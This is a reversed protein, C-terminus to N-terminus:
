TNSNNKLALKKQKYEVKEEPTLDRYMKGFWQWCYQKSVQPTPKKNKLRNERWKKKRLAIAEKNQEYYLSNAKLCEEKNTHYYSKSYERFYEIHNERYEKQKDKINDKNKEYYEKQKKKLEEKHKEYYERSVIKRWCM